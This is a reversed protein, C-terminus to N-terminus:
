QDESVAKEYASKKEIVPQSEVHQAGGELLIEAEETNEDILHQASAFFKSGPKILRLQIMATAAQGDKVKELSDLYLAQSMLEDPESGPPAFLEALPAGKLIAIAAEYNAKNISEAAAHVLYMNFLGITFGGVSVLLGLGLIIDLAMPARIRRKVDDPLAEEEAKEELVEELIHSAKIKTFTRRGEPTGDGSVKSSPEAGAETPSETQTKSAEAAPSTTQSEAAVTESKANTNEATAAEPRSALPVTDALESSKKMAAKADVNNSETAQEASPAEPQVAEAAKGSEEVSNAKANDAMSDALNDTAPALAQDKAAAASEHNSDHDKGSGNSGAPAQESGSAKETDKDAIGPEPNSMFNDRLSHVNGFTGESVVKARPSM